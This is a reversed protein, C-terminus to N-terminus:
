STATESPPSIAASWSTSIDVKITGVTSSHSPSTRCSSVRLDRAIVGPRKKLCVHMNDFLNIPISIGDLFPLSIPTKRRLAFEFFYRYTYGLSKYSGKHSFDTLVLGLQNAINGLTKKSLYSLHYHNYFHWYKSAARAHLSEVDVTSLFIAGDDKLLAQMERLFSLPDRVHEIVDFATIIDFSKKQAAAFQKVDGLFFNRDNSLFHNYLAESPEVGYSEISRNRLYRVFKGSGCGVDVVVVDSLSRNSNMWEYLNNFNKEDAPNPELYKRYAEEYDDIKNVFNPNNSSGSYRFSCNSCEYYPTEGIEFIKRGSKTTCIPCTSGM